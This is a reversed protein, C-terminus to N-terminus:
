AEVMNSASQLVNSRKVRVDKADLGLEDLIDGVTFKRGTKYKALVKDLKAEGVKPHAAIKALDFDDYKRLLMVNTVYERTEGPVKAVSKINEWTVPEGEAELKKVAKSVNGMGWNYAALAVKKDGFQDELQKLYRSGAEVNKDPDFRQESTLGLDEATAPMLQMLGAAGVPSVAKPNFRSEIGMVAKVLRPEAYKEGTPISVNQKGVKVSEKSKPTVTPTSKTPAEALRLLEELEKRQADALEQKVAPAPPPTEMLTPATSEPTPEFMGLGRSLAAGMQGARTMGSEISQLRGAQTAAKALEDQQGAFMYQLATAPDKLAETLAQATLNTSTQLRPGAIPINSVARTMLGTGALVSGVDRATAVTASEPTKGGLARVLSSAQVNINEANLGEVAALEGKNKIQNLVSEWQQVVPWIPSDAYVARKKQIWKLKSEVTPQQAFDAMETALKNPELGGLVKAYEDSVASKQSVSTIIDEPNQKRLLKNLPARQNTEDYFWRQKYKRWANRAASLSETGPVADLQKELINALGKAFGEDRSGTKASRSIELISSRLTQLREVTATIAEGKKLKGVPKVLDLVDKYKTMLEPSPAEIDSQPFYKIFLEKAKSNIGKVPAKIANVEPTFLKDANSKETAQASVLLKKAAEGARKPNPDKLDVLSQATENLQELQQKATNAFEVNAQGASTGALRKEAMAAQQNGTLDAVTLNEGLPGLEQKKLAAEVLQEQPVIQSIEKGVVAQAQEPTQPGFYDSITSAVKAARPGIARALPGGVGRFVAELGLGLGAEKTAEEARALPSVQRGTLYDIGMQVPVDVYSGLAGGLMAGPVGGVVGGATGGIISGAISAAEEPYQRLSEMSWMKGLEEPTQSGFLTAIRMQPTATPTMTPSPTATPTPTLLSALPSAAEPTLTPIAGVVGASEREAQALLEEVTAM